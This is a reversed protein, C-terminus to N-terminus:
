LARLKVHPARPAPPRAPRTPRRDLPEHRATDRKANEVLLRPAPIKLTRQSM